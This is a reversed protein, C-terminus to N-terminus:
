EAVAIDDRLQREILLDGVYPLSLLRSLKNRAWVGPWTRPAFTAAFRRASRQKGAILPQLLRQYEHFAKRYEGKARHLEDALVYAEVMALGTGEGALLSVAAAADGILMVRDKFWTDMAIQSVRDFYIDDCGQMTDLIHRCEWGMGGFVAGLSEKIEDPGHPDASRFRDSTGILLFMTRDDRMAFRSVMRGPAGYSVYVLEDRPRYGRAEFAAVRYGLDREFDADPGFVLRRVPSHLGGAGILLDFERAGGNHFGVQVGAEDQEVTAISDGFISEVDESLTGYIMAAM